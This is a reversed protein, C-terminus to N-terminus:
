PPFITQRQEMTLRLIRSNPRLKLVDGRTPRSRRILRSSLNLAGPKDHRGPEDSVVRGVLNPMATKKHKKHGFQNAARTKM